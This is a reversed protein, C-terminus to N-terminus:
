ASAVHALLLRGTLDGIAWLGPLNTRGFDDIKVFGRELEIGAEKLGLGETNAGFGIGILVREAALTDGKGGALKVRVGGEAPAVEAASTTRCCCPLLAPPCNRSLKAATTSRQQSTTTSTTM